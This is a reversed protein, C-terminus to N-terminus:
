VARPAARRKARVEALAATIDAEIAAPPHRRTGKRLRTLLADFQQRWQGEPYVSVLCVQQNKLGLRELPKLVGREYRARIVQEM